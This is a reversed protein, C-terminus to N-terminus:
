MQQVNPAIVKNCITAIVNSWIKKNTNVYFAAKILLVWCFYKLLTALIYLFTILLIWEFHIFAIFNPSIYSNGKFNFDCLQLNSFLAFSFLTVCACFFQWLFYIAPLYIKNLLMINEESMKSVILKIQKRISVSLSTSLTLTSITSTCQSHIVRSFDTINSQSKSRFKYFIDSM